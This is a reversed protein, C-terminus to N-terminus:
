FHIYLILTATLILPSYCSCFYSSSVFVCVCVYLSNCPFDNPNPGVLGKVNGERYQWRMVCVQAVCVSWLLLSVFFM